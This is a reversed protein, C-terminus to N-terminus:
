EGSAAPASDRKQFDWRAALRQEENAFWDERLVEM